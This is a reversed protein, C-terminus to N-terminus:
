GIKVLSNIVLYIVKSLNVFLNILKAIFNVSALKNVAELHNKTGYGANKNWEYKNEISHLKTM